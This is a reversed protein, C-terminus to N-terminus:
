ITSLSQQGKYIVYTQHRSWWWELRGDCSLELMPEYGTETSCPTTTIEAVYPHLDVRREFVLFLSTGSRELDISPCLCDLRVSGVSERRGASFHLLMGSYGERDVFKCPTVKVLDTLDHGSYFFDEIASPSPVESARLIPFPSEPRAPKDSEFALSSIEM